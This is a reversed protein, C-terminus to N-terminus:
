CFDVTLQVWFHITLKVRDVTLKHRCTLKSCAEDVRADWM